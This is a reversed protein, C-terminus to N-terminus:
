VLGALKSLHVLQIKGVEEASFEGTILAQTRKLMGKDAFVDFVRDCGVALCDRIHAVERSPKSAVAIEVAIRVQGNEL